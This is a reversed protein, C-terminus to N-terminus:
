NKVALPHESKDDLLHFDAGIHHHDLMRNRGGALMWGSIIKQTPPSM